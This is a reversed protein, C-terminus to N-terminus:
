GQGGGRRAQSRRFIERVEAQMSRDHEAARLKLWRYLEPEIGRISMARTEAM